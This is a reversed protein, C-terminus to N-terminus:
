LFWNKSKKPKSFGLRYSEDVSTKEQEKRQDERLAIDSKSALTPLSAARHFRLSFPLSFTSIPLFRDISTNMSISYDTDDTGKRRASLTQFETDTQRFDFNLNIVDAFSAGVSIRKAFGAQRRVNTLRLDDFWIELTTSSTRDKGLNVIGAGVRSIRTINPAGYVALWGEQTQKYRHEIGDQGYITVTDPPESKLNTLEALSIRVDHWGPLIRTGYEYFNLSDKGFRVFVFLSESAVEEPGHVYFAMDEYLTYDQAEGPLTKYVSGSNGPALNRLSFVLSQERKKFGQPDRGPDYPPIYDPDDRTNKASIEFIEDESPEAATMTEKTRIGEELWSAGALQLYAIQYVAPSDIGTFFFRIYKISRWNPSGGLTDAQTLPIRYQRWGQPTENVIYTTDDLDFTLRFFVEDTDLNGDLDLDETDASIRPDNETGNIHSYDGESYSWDDDPDDGPEGTFVGDLGTNEDASRIGNNDRDETDLSDVWPHYYNESISGLDVHMKGGSGVKPRLWIEFFKLESYDSGTKSVLRMLGSWSSDPEYPAHSYKPGRFNIEMVPIKAEGPRSEANPFLDKEDVENDRVYWLPFAASAGQPYVQPTDEHTCRRIGFHDVTEKGSALKSYAKQSLLHMTIKYELFHQSPYVHG